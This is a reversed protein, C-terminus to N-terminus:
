CAEATQTAIFQIISLDEHSLATAIEPHSLAQSASIMVYAGTVLNVLTIMDDGQQAYLRYQISASNVNM